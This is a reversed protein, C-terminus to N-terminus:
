TQHGSQDRGTRNQWWLTTLDRRNRIDSRGSRARSDKAPHTNPYNCLSQDECINKCSSNSGMQCVLQYSQIHVIPLVASFLEDAIPPNLHRAM